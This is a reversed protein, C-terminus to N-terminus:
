SISLSVDFYWVPKKIFTEAPKNRIRGSPVLVHSHHTRGAGELGPQSCVAWWLCSSFFLALVITAALMGTYKSAYVRRSHTQRHVHWSARPSMSCRIEPVRLGICRKNITGPPCANLPIGITSCAVAIHYPIGGGFSRSGVTVPAHFRQGAGGCAHAGHSVCDM